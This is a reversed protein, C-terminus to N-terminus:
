SVFSGSLAIYHTNNAGFAIPFGRGIPNWLFTPPRLGHAVACLSELAKFLEPTDTPDIPVLRRTKIIWYPYCFFVVTGLALTLCVGISKWIVASRLLSACSAQRPIIDNWLRASNNELEFTTIDAFASWTRLICDGILSDVSVDFQGYLRASGCLVSVVFLIL